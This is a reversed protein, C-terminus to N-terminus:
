KNAPETLGTLHSCQCGSWHSALSGREKKGGYREMEGARRMESRKLHQCIEEKRVKDKKLIHGVFNLSLSVVPDPSRLESGIGM